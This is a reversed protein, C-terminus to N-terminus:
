LKFYDMLQRLIETQASLEEATSATEQSVIANSQVVKSIQELGYKVNEMAEAQEKSANSISGITALVENTSAVIANLSDAM